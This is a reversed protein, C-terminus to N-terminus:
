VSVVYGDKRLAAVTADLRDHKVLLYDTDFTSIAFVSIQAEALVQTLAALVGVLAFDLVGSVKLARWGREVKLGKPVATEDCVLSVEEATVTVSWLSVNSQLDPSSFTTLMEDMSEFGHRDARCVALDGSLVELEFNRQDAGNM